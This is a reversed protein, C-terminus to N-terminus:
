SAPTAALETNLVKLRACDRQVALQIVHSPGSPDAEAPATYDASLDAPDIGIAWAGEYIQQECIGIVRTLVERKTTNSMSSSFNM